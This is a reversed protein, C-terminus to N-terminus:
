YQKMLPLYEVSKMFRFLPLSEILTKAKQEDLDKFVIVAGNRTPRLFLHEVLGEQKWEALVHQEHQIIEQFNAPLNDTHITFIVLVNNQM